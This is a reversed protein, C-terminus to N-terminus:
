SNILLIKGLWAWAVLRILDLLLYALTVLLLKRAKRRSFSAVVVVVIAVLNAM